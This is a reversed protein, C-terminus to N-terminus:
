DTYEQWIAKNVDENELIRYDLSCTKNERYRELERDENWYEKISFYKGGTQILHPCPMFDGKANIAMYFTGARCGEGLFRGGKLATGLEHFCSEVILYGKFERCYQVLNDFDTKNIPNCVMGVNNKKMSLVSIYKVNFSKALSILQPLDEINEHYAVWNIAVTLGSLSLIELAKKSCQFGERTLKHIEANSGNLSVNCCDLGVEELRKVYEVTMGVGSTSIVNRIGKKQAYAIIEVLYPYVLPEGGSFQVQKTGLLALEDIYGCVTQPEMEYYKGYEHFCIPCKLPCRETVSINVSYPGNCHRVRKIM